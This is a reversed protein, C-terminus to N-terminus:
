AAKSILQSLRERVQIYEHDFAEADLLDLFDDAKVLEARLWEVLRQAFQPDFRTGANTEITHLAAQPLQGSRWPREHTLSDFADCLAVVRAEVPINEGALGEPGRGDWREHHFRVVPICAQLMELRASGLLDAGFKAHGEVIGREGETLDQRKTLLESPVVVTGIDILKAALAIRETKETSWGLSATFLETLRALRFIRAHDYGARLSQNIAIDVLGSIRKQIELGFRALRAAGEIEESSHAQGSLRRVEEAKQRRTFELLHQQMTLAEDFHGTAEYTRVVADLAVWYSSPAEAQEVIRDMTKKDGTGAAFSSIAEAVAALERAAAIGSGQAVARAKRACELAEDTRGVQVLLQTHTLAGHVVWLKEEPNRPEGCWNNSAREAFAIAQDIEGLRMAALAANFLVHWTSLHDGTSEFFTAARQFLGLAEYQLGVDNYTKGLSNLLEAEREVRDLKRAIEIAHVLERISGSFDYGERLAIGYQCRAAMELNEYKGFVAAEVALAASEIARQTQGDLYFFRAIDRLTHTREPPFWDPPLQEVANWAAMMFAATASTPSKKQKLVEDRLARLQESPDANWRQPIVSHATESDVLQQESADIPDPSSAARSANM